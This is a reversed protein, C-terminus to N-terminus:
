VFLGLCVFRAWVFVCVWVFLGLCVFGFWCVFWSHAFLCATRRSRRRVWPSGDGSTPVTRVTKYTTNVTKYTTKVTKYTTKVTKYTTNVRKYTIKVTNYTVVKIGPPAAPAAACRPAEVGRLPSPRQPLCPPNRVQQCDQRQRPFKSCTLWDLGSESRPKLWQNKPPPREGGSTPVTAAGPVVTRNPKTQNTSNRNPKTQNTSNTCSETILTTNALLLEWYPLFRTLGPRGRVRV